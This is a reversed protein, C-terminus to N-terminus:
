TLSGPAVGMQVLDAMAEERQRRATALQAELHEIEADLETVQQTRDGVKEARMRQEWQARRGESQQALEFATVRGGGRVRM